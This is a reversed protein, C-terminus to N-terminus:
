PTVEFVVGCGGTCNASSGGDATGYLNGASDLILSSAPVAGDTQNFNWLVKETYAGGSVVPAVLEFVFGYGFEGGYGDGGVSGYINGAVDFVIGSMGLHAWTQLARVTWTGKKIGKTVLSLKYVESHSVGKSQFQTVTGYINGVNDLIPTSCINGYKGPFTHLVTPNWGGNGNPSLEFVTSLGAGFINGAKDMTLGANYNAVVYIVHAAWGGKGDPSLEFVGGVTTGYFNGAEDMILGSIPNGGDAGGTFSYLVTEKWGAGVPSLEYVVGCGAYCVGVGGYTVTGYLNGAKDFIVSNYFPASGDACNPASCFNYIVKENWGGSGNPSLEFVVGNGNGGRYATGYFSGNHYTLSSDPTGGANGSVFNYLVTETQAQAPCVAVLLLASLVALISLCSNTLEIWSRHQTASNM